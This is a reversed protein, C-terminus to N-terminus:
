TLRNCHYVGRQLAANGAYSHRFGECVGVFLSFLKFLAIFGENFRSAVCIVRHSLEVGARGKDRIHEVDYHEDRASKEEVVSLYREAVIGRKDDRNIHEDGGNHREDVEHLLVLVADGAKLSENLYEIFERLNNTKLM